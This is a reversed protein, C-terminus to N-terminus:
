NRELAERIEAMRKEDILRHYENLIDLQKNKEFNEILSGFAINDSPVRYWRKGKGTINIQSTLDDDSIEFLKRVGSADLYKEEYLRLVMAKYPIAFLDVLKLVDEFSINKTNIGYIDIQERIQSSPALLLGAFANASMDETEIKDAELSSSMLISGQSPLDYDDGDFYCYIHYLEHAAAFIQKALIMESNVSVFIRDGRLFTCACLEEDNIPIRFLELPREQKSTYNEMIGFIDDQVINSGCYAGSFERSAVKIKEFSEPKKTYLSNEIAKYM